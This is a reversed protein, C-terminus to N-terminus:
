PQEALRDIADQGIAVATDLVDAASLGAGYGLFAVRDDRRSWGSAVKPWQGADRLGLPALHRMSERGGTAWLVADVPERTGDAFVAADRELRALPGRSVLLGRRRGEFVDKTLEIGRVSVDSPMRSGRALMRRVRRQPDSAPVGRLSLVPRAHFDPERRTSWLPAAGARELELLAWVAARGGGVVLVRKGAFPTFEAVRYVHRQVGAFDVLGPYWPVFPTSWSGTANVLIRTTFASAATNHVQVLLERSRPLPRVARVRTGHTVFLDYADEYKTWAARVAVAASQQPVGASFALGLEAQGPLDLLEGTALARELTLSSWAHQWNAGPYPQADVVVFDRLPALGLGFLSYAATLGAAGAGVVTISFHRASM